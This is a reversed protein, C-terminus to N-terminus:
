GSMVLAWLKPCIDCRYFWPGEWHSGKLLQAVHIEAGRPKQMAQKRQQAHRTEGTYKTFYSIGASIGGGGPLRGWSEEGLGGGLCKPCAEM